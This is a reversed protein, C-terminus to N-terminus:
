EDNSASCSDKAGFVVSGSDVLLGYFQVYSGKSGIQGSGAPGTFILTASEATGSPQNFTVTIIGNIVVFNGSDTGESPNLTAEGSHPWGFEGNEQLTICYPGNAYHSMSVKAPWQGTYSQARATCPTLALAVIPLAMATLTRTNRTM